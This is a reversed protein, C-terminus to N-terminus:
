WQETIFTVFSYVLQWSFKENMTLTVQLVWSSTRTEILIFNSILRTSFLGAESFGRSTWSLQQIGKRLYSRLYIGIFCPWYIYLWDCIWLFCAKLFVDTGPGLLLSYIGPSFLNSWFCRLIVLWFFNSPVVVRMVNRFCLVVRRAAVLLKRRSAPAASILAHPIRSVRGSSHAFSPRLFQKSTINSVDCLLPLALWFSLLHFNWYYLICAEFPQM